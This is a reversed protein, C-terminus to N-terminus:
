ILMDNQTTKVLKHTYLKQTCTELSSTTGENTSTLLLVNCKYKYTM